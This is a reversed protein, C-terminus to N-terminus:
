KIISLGISKLDYLIKEDSIQLRIMEGCNIIKGKYNYSKADTHYLPGTYNMIM